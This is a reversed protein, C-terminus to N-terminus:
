KSPFSGGGRGIIGEPYVQILIMGAARIVLAGPLNKCSSFGYQVVMWPMAGYQLLAAGKFRHLRTKYFAFPLLHASLGCPRWPERSTRRRGLRSIHVASLSALSPRLPPQLSLGVNGQLLDVTLVEYHVTKSEAQEQKEWWLEGVGVASFNFPLFNGHHSREARM